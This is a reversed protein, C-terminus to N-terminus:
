NVGSARTIEGREMKDAYERLAREDSARPVHKGLLRGDGGAAKDQDMEQALRSIEGHVRRGELM